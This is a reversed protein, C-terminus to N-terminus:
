LWYKDTRGVLYDLSCGYYECFNFATELDAGGTCYCIEDILDDAVKNREGGNEKVISDVRDLMKVTDYEYM